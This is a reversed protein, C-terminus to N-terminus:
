DSGDYPASLDLHESGPVPVEQWTELVPVDLLSGAPGAFRLMETEPSLPTDKNVEALRAQDRDVADDTSM